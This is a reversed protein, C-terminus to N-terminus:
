ITLKSSGNKPSNEHYFIYMKYMIGETRLVNRKVRINEYIIM